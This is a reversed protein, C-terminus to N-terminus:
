GHGQSPPPSPRQPGDSPVVLVACAAARLLHQVPSGGALGDLLAGRASRGLVLLRAQRTLSTLVDAAGDATVLMNVQVDPHVIRWASLAMELTWRAEDQDGAASARVALLRARRRAAEAFARGVVEDATWPAAGLVVAGGQSAHGSTSSGNWEPVAFVPCFAFGVIDDLGPAPSPVVVAEADASLVRLVEPVDGQPTYGLLPLHSVADSIATLADTLVRRTGGRTGSRTGQAAVVVHLPARRRRAEAAAWTLATRGAPFRDASTVVPRTV